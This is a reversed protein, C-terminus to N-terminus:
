IYKTVKKSCFVVSYQIVRYYNNLEIKACVYAPRICVSDFHLILIIVRISFKV